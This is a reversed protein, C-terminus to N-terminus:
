VPRALLPAAILVVPHSPHRLDASAPRPRRMASKAPTRKRVPKSTPPDQVDLSAVLPGLKGEVITLPVAPAITRVTLLEFTLHPEVIVTVAVTSLEVPWGTALTVTRKSVLLPLTLGVEVLV